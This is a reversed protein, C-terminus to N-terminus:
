GMIPYPAGVPSCHSVTPPANPRWLRLLIEKQALTCALNECMARMNDAFREPTLEHRTPKWVVQGVFAPEHGGRWVGVGPLLTAGVSKSDIQRARAKIFLNRALPFPIVGGDGLKGRLPLGAACSRTGDTFARGQVGVERGILFEAMHLPKEASIGAFAPQRRPRPRARMVYVGAAVAGLLGFLLAAGAAGAGPKERLAAAISAAWLASGRTTTHVGGQTFESQPVLALSDIFRARGLARRIAETTAASKPAGPANPPGVWIVQRKGAQAEAQRVVDAYAAPAPDDNAGLIFMAVDADAVLAPIEGSAVYRVTSWGTRSTTRLVEYGQAALERRLPADLNAAHSDGVIAVSLVAAM